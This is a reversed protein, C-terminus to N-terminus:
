RPSETLMTVVNRINKNRLWSSIDIVLGQGARDHVCFDKEKHQIPECQLVLVGGVLTLTDVSM